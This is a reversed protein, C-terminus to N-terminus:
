RRRMLWVGAGVLLAAGPWLGVLFVRWFTLWADDKLKDLRPVESGRVGVSIRDADHTAWHLANIFLDPIGPFAAYSQFGAGSLMIGGPMELLSNSIFTASGFVVLRKPPTPAQGEVAPSAAREAAVAVPFPPARDTDKRTAYQRTRLEENLATLDSVGWADAGKRVLVVPEVSLGAPRTSAPVISLPCVVDMGIPSAALPRSIAHDTLEFLTSELVARSAFRAPWYGGPTDLAPTFPLVIYNHEVEVGWTSRLYDGYEYKGAGMEPIPSSSPVFAALFIAMGSEEVAKRVIEVDSPTMGQPPPQPRRPDPQPPPAPPFVVYIKRVADPVDPPQKSVQVDWDATVFNAKQLAENLTGYPARPFQGFQARSFDPVIPSPGGFRTFIVGTKEKETLKLIASSVGQEGAFDRDDGDKSLQGDARYPWAEWFSVVEAREATEVIIPPANAWGRLQAALDDLALPKLEQARTTLATIEPLLAVYDGAAVQLFKLVDPPTRADQNGRKDVWDKVSNFFRTVGDLYARVTEVQSGYRPLDEAQLETLTRAVEGAQETFQELSRVVEPLVGAQEGAAAVLREAEGRQRDLLELIKQNLPAHSELIDLHARAEEKYAPKDRLRRLLAPLESRDKMPDILRATVKGRAASEYLRLLDRVMDQRKQARQDYESLVTYLATIRVDDKLSRLLKETRPSLSNIRSRTVDLKGQFRQALYAAGVTIVLVIVVQVATNLGYFVRRQGAQTATAVAM